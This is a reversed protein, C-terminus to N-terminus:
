PAVDLYVTVGGILGGDDAEAVINMPIRTGPSVDNPVHVNFTSVVRDAPGLAADDPAQHTVNVDMGAPLSYDRQLIKERLEEFGSYRLKVPQFRSKPSTFSVRGLLERQRRAFSREGAADHAGRKLPRLARPEVTPLMHALRDSWALRGRGRAMELRLSVQDEDAIVYSDFRFRLHRARRSTGFAELALRATEGPSVSGPNAAYVNTNEQGANNALNIDLPHSLHAQLCYHATEGPTAPPTHWQFRTIASGMGAIDVSRVVENGAADTEVPVLDPSNFSWPRYVLRVQVGIAPDLSANHARVSVIYDTDAELHYSDPEVATPDAAPAIFIDPNNWTVPLGQSALYTQSYISPDPRRVIVEPVKGCGDDTEEPKLTKTRILWLIWAWLKLLLLLLLVILLLLLRLLAVIIELPGRLFLDALLERIGNM